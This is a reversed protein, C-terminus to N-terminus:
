DEPPGHRRRLEERRRKERVWIWITITLILAALLGYGLLERETM